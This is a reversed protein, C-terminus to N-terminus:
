KSAATIVAARRIRRRRRVARDATVTAQEPSEGKAIAENYAKEHARQERAERRQKRDSFWGM